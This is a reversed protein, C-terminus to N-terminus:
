EVNEIVLNIDALLPRSLDVHGSLTPAENGNILIKVQKVEGFNLCLTNVIAWLMLREGQADTFNTLSEDPDLDVYATGNRDLFVQRAQLRSLRDSADKEYPGNLLREVAHRLRGTLSAADLYDAKSAILGARDKHPFYFTINRKESARATGMALLFFLGLAIGTRWHRVGPILPRGFLRRNRKLGEVRFVSHGGSKQRNGIKAKRSNQKKPPEGINLAIICGM